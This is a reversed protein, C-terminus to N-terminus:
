KENTMKRAYLKEFSRAMAGAIIVEQERLNKAANVKPHKKVRDLLDQYELPHEKPWDALSFAFQEPHIMKIEDILHWKYLCNNYAAVANTPLSKLTISGGGMRKKQQFQQHAKELLDKNEAILQDAIKEIRTMAEKTIAQELLKTDQEKKALAVRKKKAAKAAEKKRYEETEWGKEIARMYMGARNNVQQKSAIAIAMKVKEIGKQEIHEQAIIALIGWSVLKEFISAYQVKHPPPEKNVPPTPAVSVIPTQELDPEAKGTSTDTFQPYIRISDIGRKVIQKGSDLTDFTFQVPAQKEKLEKQATELVRRRFDNFRDYNKDLGLKWKLAEVDIEFYPRNKFQELEIIEKMRITYISSYQGIEDITNTYSQKEVYSFYQRIEETFVLVIEKTDKDVALSQLWNLCKYFRKGKTEKPADLILPHDNLNKFIKRIIKKKGKWNKADRTKCFAALEKFSLRVENPDQSRKDIKSGGIILLRKAMLNMSQRGLIMANAQKVISPIKIPNSPMM